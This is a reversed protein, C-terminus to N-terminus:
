FNHVSSCGRDKTSAEKGGGMKNSRMSGLEEQQFNSLIKKFVLKKFKSYWASEDKLCARRRRWCDNLRLARPEFDTILRNFFYGEQHDYQKDM